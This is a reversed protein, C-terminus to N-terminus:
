PYHGFIDTCNSATPAKQRCHRHEAPLKQKILGSFWDVMELKRRTKHDKHDWDGLRGYATCLDLHSWTYLNYCWYGIPWDMSYAGLLVRGIGVRDHCWLYFQLELVTRATRWDGWAVLHWLLRHLRLPHQDNRWGGFWVMLLHFWAVLQQSKYM